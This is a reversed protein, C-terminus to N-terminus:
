RRYQSRAISLIRERAMADSLSLFSASHDRLTQMEEDNLIFGEEALANGMGALLRHRFSSDLGAKWLIRGVVSQRM